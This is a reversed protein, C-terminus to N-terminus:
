HTAGLANLNSIIKNLTDWKDADYDEDPIELEFHAEVEFLLKTFDLSDIGQASLKEDPDLTEIAVPLKLRAARVLAAIDNITM